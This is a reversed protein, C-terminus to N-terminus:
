DTGAGGALGEELGDVVLRRIDAAADPLGAQGHRVRLRQRDELVHVALRVRATRRKGPSTRAPPPPAIVVSVSELAILWPRRLDRSASGLTSMMPSSTPLSPPTNRTVSPSCFSKPSDRTTSVGSASDPMTPVAM